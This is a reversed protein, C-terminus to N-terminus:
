KSHHSCTVPEGVPNVHYEGGSPCFLEFLVGGAYSDLVKLTIESGLGAGYEAGFRRKAKELLVLNRQCQDKRVNQEQILNSVAFLAALIITISILWIKIKM